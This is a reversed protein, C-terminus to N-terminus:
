VNVKDVAVGSKLLEANAELIPNVVEALFDAVQEPARGVFKAPNVITDFDDKVSAFAPDNKLRELLDNDKGEAKVVKAAEM